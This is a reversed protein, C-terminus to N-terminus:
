YIRLYESTGCIAIMMFYAMSIAKSSNSHAPCAHQIMTDVDHRAVIRSCPEHILFDCKYCKFTASVINSNKRLCSYGLDCLRQRLQYGINKLGTSSSTGIQRKESEDRLKLRVGFEILVKESKSCRPVGVCDILIDHEGSLQCCSIAVTEADDSLTVYCLM